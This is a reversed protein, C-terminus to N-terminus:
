VAQLVGWGGAARPVAEKQVVALQSAALPAGARGEQDAVLPAVAAAGEWATIEAATKTDSFCQLIRENASNLIANYFHIGRNSHRRPYESNLGRKM